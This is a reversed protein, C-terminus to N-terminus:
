IANGSVAFKIMLDDHMDVFTGVARQIPDASVTDFVGIFKIKVWMTHHLEIFQKAKNKRKVKNSIKYISFAEEIIDRRAM